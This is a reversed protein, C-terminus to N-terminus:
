GVMRGVGATLRGFQATPAKSAGSQNVLSAHGFRCYSLALTNSQRTAVGMKAFGM